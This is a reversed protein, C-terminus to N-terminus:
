LVVVADVRPDSFAVETSREVVEESVVVSREIPERGNDRGEGVFRQDRGPAKRPHALDRQDVRGQETMEVVFVLRRDARPQRRARGLGSLSLTRLPRMTPRTRGSPFRTASLSAPEFGAREALRASITVNSHLM